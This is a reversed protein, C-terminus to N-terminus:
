LSAIALQATQWAEAKQYMRAILEDRVQALLGPDAGIAEVSVTWRETLGPLGDVTGELVVRRENSDIVKVMTIGLTM